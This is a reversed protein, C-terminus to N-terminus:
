PHKREYASPVLFCNSEKYLIDRKKNCPWVISWAQNQLRYFINVEDMFCTNGLNILNTILLIRIIFVLIRVARGGKYSLDPVPEEFFNFKGPDPKDDNQLFM